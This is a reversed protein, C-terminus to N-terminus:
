VMVVRPGSVSVPLMEGSLPACILHTTVLEQSPVSVVM